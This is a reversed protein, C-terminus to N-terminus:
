VRKEEIEKKLEKLFDAIKVGYKSTGDRSRVALTNTDVEKEGVVLMYNVKDLQAERIKKGITNASDDV